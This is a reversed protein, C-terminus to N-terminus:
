YVLSTDPRHICYLDNYTNQSHIMDCMHNAHNPSYVLLEEVRKLEKKENNNEEMLMILTVGTVSSCGYLGMWMWM